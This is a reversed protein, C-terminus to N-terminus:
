VNVAQEAEWLNIMQNLTYGARPYSRPDFDEWERFAEAQERANPGVFAAHEVATESVTDFFVARENEPDFLIVCAM